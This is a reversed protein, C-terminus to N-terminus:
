RRLRYSLHRGGAVVTDLGVWRGDAYWLDIPRELGRLRLGSVRTPAGNVEISREALAATSVPRLRGTGPDLLEDRALFRPNWYAFSATCRAAETTVGEGRDDERDTQIGVLFRDNALKGRVGTVRGDDETRAVISELCGASWRETAEHRYRYVPIGLMRVEFRAESRISLLSSGGPGHAREQTYRHWGVPRGDLLVTFSTETGADAQAHLAFASLLAVGLMGVVRLPRATGRVARRAAGSPRPPTPVPLPM